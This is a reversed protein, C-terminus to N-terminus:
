RAGIRWYTYVRAVTSDLDHFPPIEFYNEIRFAVGHPLLSALPTQVSCFAPNESSTVLFRRLPDNQNQSVSKLGGIGM